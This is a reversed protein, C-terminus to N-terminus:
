PLLDEPFLDVITPTQYKCNAKAYDFAEEVVVDSAECLSGDADHNWIDAKGYLIGEEVLYYTFQGNQVSEFEYSLGSESCAMVVIRGRAKLDTMGGAYCSDFIFIIRSTAFNSFMEALEGDWILSQVTCEWPVIAEDIIENDGDNAKGRSGHGSYFFVVEDDSSVSEKLSCIASVINNRTAKENTLLAIKKKSYGYVSILTKYFDSADDDAYELDNGDGNYDSIGIVIAWKDAGKGLLEGLVGTAAQKLPKATKGMAATGRVTIKRTIEVDSAQAPIAYTQSQLILMLFLIALIGFWLTRKM